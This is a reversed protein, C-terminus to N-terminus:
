GELGHRKNYPEFLEGCYQALERDLVSKFYVGEKDAKEDERRLADYETYAASFVTEFEALRKQGYGLRGLAITLIDLCFRQEDIRGAMTWRRREDAQRQIFNKGM